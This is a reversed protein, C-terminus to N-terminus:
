VWFVVGVNIYIHMDWKQMSPLSKWLRTKGKYKIERKETQSSKNIGNKHLCINRWTFYLALQMLNLKSVIMCNNQFLLLCHLSRPGWIFPMPRSRNLITSVPTPGVASAWYISGVWCVNASNYPNELFFHCIPLNLWISEAKYIKYCKKVCLAPIKISFNLWNQIKWIKTHVSYNSDIGHHLVLGLWDLYPPLYPWVANKHSALSWTKIPPPPHGLKLSILWMYKEGRGGGHKCLLPRSYIYLTRSATKVWSVQVPNQSYLLLLRSISTSLSTDKTIDTKDQFIFFGDDVYLSGALLLLWM